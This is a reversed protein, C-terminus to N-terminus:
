ARPNGYPAELPARDCYDPRPDLSKEDLIGYDSSALTNVIVTQVNKQALVGLQDAFRFADVFASAWPNGGCAAEGTETLWIPKGPTYSDRLKAYYAEGDPNRDLYEPTLVKDWSLTLPGVCRRSLTTYFHYSFADFAPGTAKLMDESSLMRPLPIGQIASTDQVLPVGEGVSGPGLFLTHPSEERLFKSFVQVDKAFAAADYGKPAGGIEPFSPENMFETAVIQGGIKRNYAFFAKARTPTWVANADRTGDSVAVSTVIEAGVAHSFDVVGKWETRTMVSKFGAPPASLPAADDDQFYTTNRWTGSVRLYAPALASALKRLRANALDIPPRYQYPDSNSAPSNQEKKPPLAQAKKKPPSPSGSADALSRSLRSTTPSM